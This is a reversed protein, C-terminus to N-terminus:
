TVPPLRVRLRVHCGAPMGYTTGHPPTDTAPPPLRVISAPTMTLNSGHGATFRAPMVTVPLLPAEAAVSVPLVKSTGAPAAAAVMFAATSIDAHPLAAVPTPRRAKETMPPAAMVLLRVHSGAPMGYM